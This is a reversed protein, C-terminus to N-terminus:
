VVPDLSKRPHALQILFPISPRNSALPRNSFWSSKGCTWRKRYPMDSARVSRGFGADSVMAAWEEPGSKPVRIKSQHSTEPIRGSHVRPFKIKHWHTVQWATCHAAPLATGHGSTYQQQLVGNQAHRILRM